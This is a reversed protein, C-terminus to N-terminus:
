TWHTHLVNLSSWSDTYHPKVVRYTHPLALTTTHQALQVFGTCYWHQPVGKRVIDQSEPQTSSFCRGQPMNNANKNRHLNNWGRSTMHSFKYLTAYNTDFKHFRLQSHMKYLLWQQLTICNNGLRSSNRTSSCSNSNSVPQFCHVTIAQFNDWSLVSLLWGSSFSFHALFLTKKKLWTKTM